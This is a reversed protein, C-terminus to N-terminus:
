PAAPSPAPCWSSRGRRCSGLAARRYGRRDAFATPYDPETGSTPARLRREYWSYFRWPGRGRKAPSPPRLTASLSSARCPLPLVFRTAPRLAWALVCFGGGEEDPMPEVVIPYELRPM